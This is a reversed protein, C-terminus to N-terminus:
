RRNPNGHNTPITPPALPNPPPYRTSFTRTCSTQSTPVPETQNVFVWCSRRQFGYTGVGGKMGEGDEDEEDDDEDSIEDPDMGLDFEPEEDEDDSETKKSRKIDKAEFEEAFREMEELHFFADDVASTDRTSKKRPVPQKSSSPQDLDQADDEDEESGSFEDGEDEGAQELDEDEIDEELDEDEDNDDDDEDGDLRAEEDSGEIESGEESGELDDEDEEGGSEGDEQEDEDESEEEEATKRVEEALRKVRAGLRKILPGNQLELAAWIQEPQFGDVVLEPLAADNTRKKEALHEYEKATVCM